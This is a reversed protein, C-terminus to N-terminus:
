RCVMEKVLTEVFYDISFPYAKDGKLFNEINDLYNLYDTKPMNSIFAYLDNYNDFKRKDIFCENPIYKEINGAGLYIPICGSFFCDFIKETIYGPIDKANEYSISFKYKPLVDRKRKIRGKYSPFPVIIKKRIKNFIEIVFFDSPPYNEWGFGYLDFDDPHYKEFWRIAKIRESYLEFPSKLNKNGAIVTCLKKKISVDKNIQKPLHFSYNIKFYKINDIYDDNYTFIKKFFKHNSLDFNGRNILGNEVILLYMPKDNNVAYKFYKNDLSPMDIFFFADIMDIDILDPTSVKIGKKQAYVKLDVWPQLLNDGISVDSNNFLYNNKSIEEYANCFVIIMKVIEAGVM